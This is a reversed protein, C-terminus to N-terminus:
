YAMMVDVLKDNWNTFATEHYIFSNKESIIVTYYFLWKSLLMRCFYSEVPKAIYKKIWTKKFDKSRITFASKCCFFEDEEPNNDIFTFIYNSHYHFFMKNFIELSDTECSIIPSPSLTEQLLKWILCRLWWYTYIKFNDLSFFFYWLWYCYLILICSHQFPSM